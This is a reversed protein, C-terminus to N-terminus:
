YNYLRYKLALDVTHQAMEVTGRRDIALLLRVVIDLDEGACDHIARLVSEVYTVRTMGTSPEDRPTTRLELYKM